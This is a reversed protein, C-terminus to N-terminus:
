VGFFHNRPEWLLGTIAEVLRILEGPCSLYRVHVFRSYLHAADSRFWCFWKGDRNPAVEIGIDELASPGPTARGLWLLWHKDPQRDLQHWRFGVEKLWDETILHLQQESMM